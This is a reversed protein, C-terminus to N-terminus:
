SAIKGFTKTLMTAFQAGQDVAQSTQKYDSTSRLYQQWASFSMPGREGTKPDVNDLALSYKPDNMLDISDPNKELLQAAYQRYPDAYQQPTVGADIQKAMWPRLIKAQDKLYADFDDAQVQGASIKAVWQNLAQDSLPVLYEASKQKLGALTTLAASPQKGTTDLGGATLAQDIQQQSWGNRLANVTLDHLALGHVTSGLQTARAGITGMGNIVAQHQTAPDQQTQLDWTRASQPRSDAKGQAHLAATVQDSNWGGSIAMISMDHLQLPNLVVGLDSAQRALTATMSAIQSKAEAPNTANLNQWTVQSNNHTKWWQTNILKGKLEDPGLGRKAADILIPGIEKDHLFVSAYGYHSEVYDVVQQDTMSGVPTPAVTSNATVGGGTRANALEIHWPENGLPFSLGFRAANDHAWQRAASTSFALDAAHGLQHQSHGPPAVWKRAETASGYKTVAADWLKQQEAVSRVESNVSIGAPAAAIMRALAADLAASSANTVRPM